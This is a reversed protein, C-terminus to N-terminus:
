SKISNYYDELKKFEKQLETSLSSIGSRLLNNKEYPDNKLDYFERTGDSLGIIKYRTDRVAWMDPRPGKSPNWETFLFDRASQKGMENLYGKFSFSDNVKNIGSGSIDLITAFVDTGNIIASERSGQRINGVNKGSVIMPAWIGGEYVSAKSTESTYPAQIVEQPTGNDGIFIITTNARVEPSLSSFLRGLETDLAELSALYYKRPNNKIDEEDGSLTKYSSKDSLLEKPPMHFPAHPANYALWLFWPRNPDKTKQASIWEIAKDTFLTTTYKTGKKKVGQEILPYDFYNRVGGGLFGAFYQVGLESPANNDANQGGSLHWKGIFANAYPVPVKSENALLDGLTETNPPLIQDVDTVGTRFAYKGTIMTSRTPSCVPNVWVNDFVVGQKCLSEVNPMYPKESGINPYCPHADLGMDDAIVLIINPHKGIDTISVPSPNFEKSTNKSSINLDFIKLLIFSCVIILIFVLLILGIKKTSLHM